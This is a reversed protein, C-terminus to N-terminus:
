NDGRSEEKGATLREKMFRVQESTFKIEGALFGIWKEDTMGHGIKRVIEAVPLGRTLEDLTPEGPSKPTAMQRFMERQNDERRSLVKKSGRPRGVPKPEEQWKYQKCRPCAKPSQLLSRWEGGSGYGCRLCVHQYKRQWVKPIKPM